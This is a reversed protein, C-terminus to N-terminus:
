KRQQTGSEEPADKARVLSSSAIGTLSLSMGPVFGWGCSVRATGGCVHITTYAFKCNRSRIGYEWGRRTTLGLFFGQAKCQFYCM